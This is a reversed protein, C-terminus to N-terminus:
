GDVLPLNSHLSYSRLSSVPGNVSCPKRTPLLTQPAKVSV